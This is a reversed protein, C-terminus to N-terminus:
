LGFLLMSCMRVKCNGITSIGTDSKDICNDPGDRAMNTEKKGGSIDRVYLDKLDANSGRTYHSAPIQNRYQSNRPLDKGCIM